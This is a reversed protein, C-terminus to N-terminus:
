DSTRHCSKEVGVLKTVYGKGGNGPTYQPMYGIESVCGQGGNGPTYQPCTVNEREEINEKM